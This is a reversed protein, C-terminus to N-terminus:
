AGPCSLTDAYRGALTPCSNPAPLDWSLTTSNFKASYLADLPQNCSNPQIGQAMFGRTGDPFFFAEPDYWTTSCVAPSLALVNGVVGATRWTPQAALPSALASALVLLFLLRNRMSLIRRQLRSNMSSSWATLRCSRRFIAIGNFTLSRLFGRHM